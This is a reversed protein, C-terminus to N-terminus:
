TLQSLIYTGDAHSRVKEILELTTLNRSILEVDLGCVQVLDSLSMPGNELLTRIIIEQEKNFNIQSELKNGSEPNMGFYELIDKAGLVPKAGMSILSNPGFSNPRTIDGPVALVERNYDLALSATILAGSKEPAEIVVVGRSLGAIIRNRAPFHHQLPPTGESYESILLGGNNIIEKALIKHEPPYISKDDIGSGLVAITHGPNKLTARHAAADIGRALGSIIIIGHQSLDGSIKEAVLLGYASAKRTGVIGLATGKNLLEINGRAFITKPPDGIEKLLSPYLESNIPIQTIEQM